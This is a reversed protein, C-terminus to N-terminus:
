TEERHHRVKELAESLTSSELRKGKLLRTAKAENVTHLPVVEYMSTPFKELGVEEARAADFYPGSIVIRGEDSLGILWLAADRTKM